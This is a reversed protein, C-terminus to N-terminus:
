WCSDGWEHEPVLFGKEINNQLYYQNSFIKQVWVGGLDIVTSATGLMTSWWSSNSLSSSLAWLSGSSSLWSTTNIASLFLEEIIRDSGGWSVKVVGWSVSSTKTSRCCIPRRWRRMAPKSLSCCCLCCRSARTAESPATYRTQFTMRHSVREGYHLFIFNNAECIFTKNFKVCSLQQESPSM